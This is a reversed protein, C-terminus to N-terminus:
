SKQVHIKNVMGLKEPLEGFSRYYDITDWLLYGLSLKQLIYVDKNLVQYQDEKCSGNSAWEECSTRKDFCALVSILMVCQTMAM